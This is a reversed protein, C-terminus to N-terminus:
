LASSHAIVRPLRVLFESGKGLGPSRAEIKGDHMEVLRKVLTLGIGLGGQAKELSRDVQTFMDYIYPLQDAAIGIGADKVSVVVDSEQVEAVLEIRGGKDSYKAANNLLNLFVQALRTSDVDVIIPQEPLIVTLDHGMQGILPRSTEVASKLVAALPVKEKRLELAGRTIRSVDMLDDVLRVMQTLQREMISRAEDIIAQKGAALKILQLGNRIPALPNRLEHALTALFEDKRHNAVSLEAALQQLKEENHKRKTIDRHVGVWERITGDANLIPVARVSCLRWEGDHRRLRHEFVFTSKEAVSRNWSEITPQADDPHVAKAWGYGRYEESSQGTFEAWGPQEGQMLGEPNNTWVVDSVAATAARYREHSEQLAQEVAKRATIDLFIVAVKKSGAGDFRYGQVDFWRNLAPSEMDFRVSEGTEAVKAFIEIWSPEFNPILERITRGKADILGSNAAFAPNVELFRYDVARGSVGYIIEVLCYGAMLSDFLNRYREQSLQLSAQSARLREDAEKRKTIDRSISLIQLVKGGAGDRVPGVRVEWWKPTGTVTPCYAEFFSDDGAAARRVSRQIDARAEAPWLEEWKQGALLLFNDIEMACLGPTNMNLFRGDLDLVKVCDPTAEMLSRNFEESRLNVDATRRGPLDPFVRSAEAIPDDAEEQNPMHGEVVRIYFILKRRFIGKLEVLSSVSCAWHRVSAM